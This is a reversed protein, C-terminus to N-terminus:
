RRPRPRAYGFPRVPRRRVTTPERPSLLHNVALHEDIAVEHTSLAVLSDAFQDRPTGVVAVDDTRGGVAGGGDAPTAVNEVYKTSELETATREVLSQYEPDTAVAEDSRIFAVEENPRLGAGTLAREAQQSERSFSDVASIDKQEVVKGGMILAMVAFVLGLWGWIARKRHTASWRAVRSTLNHKTRQEYM